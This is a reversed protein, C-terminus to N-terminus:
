HCNTILHVLTSRLYIFSVPGHRKTKVNLRLLLLPCFVKTADLAVATLLVGEYPGKLFYGDFGVFSRYGSVFGDKLAKFNIFIRLFRPEVLLNPRDYQIKCISHLNSKRLVEACKCLKAYSHYHSGQIEVLARRKAKRIQMKSHHTGYKTVIETEIAKSSVEPHLRLFPLLKMALWDSTDEQNRNDIVCTNLITLRSKVPQKVLLLPM